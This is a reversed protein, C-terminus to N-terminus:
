NKWGFCENKGPQTSFFARALYGSFDGFAVDVPFCSFVAIGAVFFAGPCLRPEDCCRYPCSPVRVFPDLPFPPFSINPLGAFPPLVYRSPPTYLPRDCFGGEWFFPFPLHKNLMEPPFFSCGAASPPAPGHGRYLPLVAGLLSRLPILVVAWRFDPGFSVFFSSRPSSFRPVGPLVFLKPPVLPWSAFSLVLSVVSFLSM